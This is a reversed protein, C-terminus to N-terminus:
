VIELSGGNVSRKLPVGEQGSMAQFQHACDALHLQAQWLINRRPRQSHKFLHHMDTENLASSHLVERMFRRQAGTDTIAMSKALVEAAVADHEFAIRLLKPRAEGRFAGTCRTVNVM